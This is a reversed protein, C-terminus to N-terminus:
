PAVDVTVEMKPHIGCFVLAFTPPPSLPADHIRM